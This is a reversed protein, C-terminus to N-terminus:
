PVSGSLRDSTFLIQHASVGFPTPFNQYAQIARWMERLWNKKPHELHLKRLREFVQRGAVEARRNSRSFHAVSTAHRVGMYACMAKFWGCTFQPANDGCITAPIDLITLWHKIM